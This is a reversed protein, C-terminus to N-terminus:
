STCDDLSIDQPGRVTNPAVFTQRLERTTSRAPGGATVALTIAATKPTVAAPTADGGPDGPDGVAGGSVVFPATGDVPTVGNALAMAPGASAGLAWQRSELRGNALSLTHCRPVPETTVYVLSKEQSGSIPLIQSRMDAAFRIDADLRKFARGAQEEADGLTTISQSLASLQLIGGTFIVMVISMIALAALLEILTV